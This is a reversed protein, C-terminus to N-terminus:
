RNLGLDLISKDLNFGSKEDYDRQFIITTGNYGFILSIHFIFWCLIHTVGKFFYLLVCEHCLRVKKSECSINILNEEKM